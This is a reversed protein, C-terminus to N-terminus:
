AAVALGPDDDFDFLEHESIRLHATEQARREAATDSVWLSRARVPRADGALGHIWMGGPEDAGISTPDIRDGFGHGLCVAVQERSVVRLMVRIGLQTRIQQDLVEASPYQTAGVITVGCFRATRALSAFVAVRARQSRQGYQLVNNLRDSAKKVDPVETPTPEALMAALHEADIALLEALEDVFVVLYPGLDPHWARLGLSRLLRARFRLLLRLQGFLRDAETTTTAVTTMRPLWSWLEVLKLDVGVMALNPLPALAGIWTSLFVSKGAGTLGAVSTHPCNYAPLLLPAGTIRTGVHILDHMLCSGLRRSELEALAQELDDDVLHLEAPPEPKDDVWEPTRVADLVDVFAVSLRGVSDTERRYELEVGVAAPVSAALIATNRDFEAFSRGPPPGVWWSIVPWDVRVWWSMKPHDAVPRLRASAIPERSSGVEAQVQRTKAALDTWWRPFGRRFWWRTRWTVLWGGSEFRIRIWLEVLGAVIVFAILGPVSRFWVAVVIAAVTHVPNGVLVHLLWRVRIGVPALRPFREAWHPPPSPRRPRAAM